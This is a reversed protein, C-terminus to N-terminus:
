KYIDSKESSLASFYNTKTELSKEKILWFLSLISILLIVSKNHQVDFYWDKRNKFFSLFFPWLMSM